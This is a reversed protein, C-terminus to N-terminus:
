ISGMTIPNPKGTLPAAVKSFYGLFRNNCGITFSLPRLLFLRTAQPLTQNQGWSQPGMESSRSSLIWNLSCNPRLVMRLVILNNKSGGM